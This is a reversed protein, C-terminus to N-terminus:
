INILLIYIRVECELDSFKMKKDNKRLKEYMSWLKKEEWTDQYDSWLKKFDALLEEIKEKSESVGKLKEILTLINDEL